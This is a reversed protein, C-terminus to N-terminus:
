LEVFRVVRGARAIYNWGFQIASVVAFKHVWPTSRAMGESRRPGVIPPKQTPLVLPAGFRSRSQVAFLSRRPPETLLHVIYVSMSPWARRLIRKAKAKRNSNTTPKETLQM